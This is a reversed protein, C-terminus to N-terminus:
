VDLQDVEVGALGDRESALAFELILAAAQADIIGKSAKASKGSQGLRQQATKSTLREDIMHVPVECQAKVRHAFDIAMLTSATHAGSLSLPLGVYIAAVSREAAIAAVAAAADAKNPVVELPLVLSGESIAIGIRAM